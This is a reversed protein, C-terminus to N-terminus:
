AFLKLKSLCRLETHDWAYSAFISPVYCCNAQLIQQQVLTTQLIKSQSNRSILPPLMITDEVPCRLGSQVPCIITHRRVWLEYFLCQLTQILYHSNSHCILTLNRKALPFFTPFFSPISSLSFYVNFFLVYIPVLNLLLLQVSFASSIQYRHM